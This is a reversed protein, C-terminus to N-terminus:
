LPRLPALQVTWTRAGGVATMAQRLLDCGLQPTGEAFGRNILNVARTHDGAELASSLGNTLAAALAANFSEAGKERLTKRPERLASPAATPVSMYTV